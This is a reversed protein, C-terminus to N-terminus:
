EPPIGSAAPLLPGRPGPRGRGPVRRRLATSASIEPATVTSQSNSFIPHLPSQSWQPLVGRKQAASGHSGPVVEGALTRSVKDPVHAGSGRASPRPRPSLGLADGLSQNGQARFYSRLYFGLALTERKAKPPSYLKRRFTEQARPIPVNGLRRTPLLM